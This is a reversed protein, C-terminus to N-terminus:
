GINTKIEMMTTFYRVVQMVEYGSMERYVMDISIDVM